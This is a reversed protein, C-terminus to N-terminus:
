PHRGRRGLALAVVVAASLAAGCGLMAAQPTLSRIALSFLFAPLGMGVYSIVFYMALVGAPSSPAAVAAAWGVAVKFLLGAGAGSLVLAVLYLWLRPTHLSFAVLALGVPLSLAGLWSILGESRSGLLIQALAATGFMLFPGIGSVLPSTVGLQERLMIAGLSSILGLVGFAVFGLISAAAFATRGGTRLAFRAPRDRARGAVDVTEPAGLLLAAMVTMAVAFVAHATVLPAPGWEAVVGAALPGMALGGLNAATAVVGPTVSAGRGPYARHYLEHLYATATSAMLGVALGTLLRGLLLGPLAPWAMLVVAAVVAMLLAPVIVRRRGFRDSLHGIALFSVVAGVVMCSFAVTVTTAGFGDRAQYLPWLPTPATGFGMQAAFAVAAFWFGAAPPVRCWSTVPAEGAPAPSQVHM